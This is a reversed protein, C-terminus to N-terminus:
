SEKAVFHLRLTVGDTVALFGAVAPPDFGYDKMFVLTQADGTLTDGQLTATTTFTVQNTIERVTLDGILQFTLGQGEAAAAPFGQIDTAVFTAIPYTSSQLWESRIRNDRRTEDSTLTEINVNIQNQGLTVTGSTPDIALAIQGEVQDTSGTSTAIGRGFFEEQVEYSATSEGPQFTFVREGDAATIVPATAGADTTGTGNEGTTTNDAAPSACAVIGMLLLGVTFVRTIKKFM